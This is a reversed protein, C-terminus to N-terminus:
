RREWRVSLLYSGLFIWFWTGSAEKGDCQDWPGWSFCVALVIEFYCFKGSWLLSAALGLSLTRLGVLLFLSWRSCREERDFDLRRWGCQLHLGWNRGLQHCHVPACHHSWILRHWRLALGCGQLVFAGPDRPLHLLSWLYAGFMLRSPTTQFPWFLESGGAGSGGSDSLNSLMASIKPCLSDECDLAPFPHSFLTVM